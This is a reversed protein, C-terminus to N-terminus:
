VVSQLILRLSYIGIYSIVGERFIYDSPFLNYETMNSNCTSYTKCLIGNKIGIM